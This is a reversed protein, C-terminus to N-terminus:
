TLKILTGREKKRQKQDISFNHHFQIVKSNTLSLDPQRFLVAGWPSSNQIIDEILM